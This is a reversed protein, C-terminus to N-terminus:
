KKLINKADYFQDNLLGIYDLLEERGVKKTSSSIFQKPLEEWSELMKTNFANIKNKLERPKVKDTKTFVIAFPVQRSGLWNMFELDIAQPKIRSDILVFALQLQPRFLLYGEIMKEWERRKTKSIKAYGYGPLDVLYWRKNIEFYNLLQTKGPQRSIRALENYGTLLNILSSKGVNSRGIFAYEPKIDKPCQTYKAYSAIYKAEQIIM